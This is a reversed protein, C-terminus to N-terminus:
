PATAPSQSQVLQLFSASTFFVSSIFFTVADPTPGVASAYWSISGLAFGFSGIMFLAAILTNLRRPRVGVRGGRRRRRRRGAGRGQGGGRGSGRRGAAPPALGCTSPAG